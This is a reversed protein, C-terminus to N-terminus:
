SAGERIWAIETHSVHHMVAVVKFPGAVAEVWEGSVGLEPHWDNVQGVRDETTIDTGAPFAMGGEAMAVVGQPQMEERAPGRSSERWWWMRCAVTALTQWDASTEAGLDDAAAMDRQIVAQQTLTREVTYALLRGSM